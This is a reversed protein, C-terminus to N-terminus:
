LDKMKANITCFKHAHPQTALVISHTRSPLANDNLKKYDTYMVSAEKEERVSEQTRRMQGKKM